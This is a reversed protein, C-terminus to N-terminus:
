QEALRRALRAITLAGQNRAQTAASWAAGAVTELWSQSGTSAEVDEDGM